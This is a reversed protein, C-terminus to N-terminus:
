HVLRRVELGFIAPELGAPPAEQIHSHKLVFTAKSSSSQHLPFRRLELTRPAQHITTQICEFSRAFNATIIGSNNKPAQAFGSNKTQLFRVWDTWASVWYHNHRETNENLMIQLNEVNTPNNEAHKRTVWNPVWKVGTFVFPYCIQQAQIAFNRTELSRVWDTWVLGWYNTQTRRKGKPDSLDCSHDKGHM